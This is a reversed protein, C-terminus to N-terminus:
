PTWGLAAALALLRPDYDSGGFKYPSDSLSQNRCLLAKGILAAEEQTEALLVARYIPPLDREDEEGIEAVVEEVYKRTLAAAKSINIM